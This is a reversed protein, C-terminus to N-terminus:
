GAIERACGVFLQAMPSITRGKLITLGIPWPLHPLKVPLIRVSPPRLGFSLVSSPLMALFRGGGVLANYLQISTSFVTIRPLPLGCARFVETVHLGGSSDTSPLVWRENMLEGLKVPRRRIWRSRAGSIVIQQEQFLIHQELDDSSDESDVKGLVLDVKRERLENYLAAGSPAQTVRFSLGPHRSVLKNVITPLIGSMMSDACGIRMEGVTPDALFAIEELSGRLEDFIVGSRRLLAHGYATPEAGRPGREFLPAGVARELEAITKSIVPQTTSLREAARGMSGCAAVTCLVELQRLKIRRRSLAAAM